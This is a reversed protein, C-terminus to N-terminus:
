ETQSNTLLSFSFEILNQNLHLQNMESGLCHLILVFISNELKWDKWWTGSADLGEVLNWWNKIRGGPEFLKWDKWWTGSTELGEVLNLYNGTRGGPEFLKWDTRSTELEEM